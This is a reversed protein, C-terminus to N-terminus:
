RKGRAIVVIHACSIRWFVNLIWGLDSSMPTFTTFPYNGASGDAGEWIEPQKKTPGWASSSRLANQILQKHALHIQCFIKEILSM